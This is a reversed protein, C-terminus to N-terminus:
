AAHKFSNELKRMRDQQSDMVTIMLDCQRLVNGLATRPDEQLGGTTGASEAEQNLALRQRWLNQIKWAAFMEESQNGNESREVIEKQKMKTMQNHQMKLVMRHKISPYSKFIDRMDATSLVMFETPTVTKVTFRCVTGLMGEEGCYDGDALRALAKCDMSLVLVCGTEIFYVARAVAGRKIVEMDAEFRAPQLVKIICALFTVDSEDTIIKMNCLLKIKLYNIVREQLPAAIQNVINAEDFVTRSTWFYKFYEKVASNLHHPFQRYRMYEKLSDVNETFINAVRWLDNMLNTINGLMYGFVCGGIMYVFIIVIRENNTMPLIDGYGVTTMTTMAFYLSLLYRYQADESDVTAEPFADILWGADYNPDQEIYWTAHLMCGLFHGTLLMTIFMKVIRLANLNIDFQVELVDFLDNVKALKVVRFLRFLRLFRILKLSGTGGGQSSILFEVIFDVPISAPIDIWFWGKLYDKAIDVRSVHLVKNKDIFATNFNIICDTIFCFDMAMEVWKLGGEAQAGFCLRYPVMIVVYIILAFMFMDWRTKFKSDPHIVDRYYCKIVQGKGPDRLQNQRAMMDDLFQISSRKGMVASTEQMKNLVQKYKNDKSRPSLTSWQELSYGASPKSINISDVDIM